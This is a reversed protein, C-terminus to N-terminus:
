QEVDLGLERRDASSAVALRGGSYRDDQSVELGLWEPQPLWDDRSEVEVEALRLGTLAGHFEDVAFRVGEM